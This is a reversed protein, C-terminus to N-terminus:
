IRCTYTLTSRFILDFLGMAADHNGVVRVCSAAAENGCFHVLCFVNKHAFLFSSARNELVKSSLRRFKSIEKRGEAAAKVQGNSILKNGISQVMPNKM